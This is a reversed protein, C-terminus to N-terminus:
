PTMAEDGYLTDAGGGGILTDQGAGGHLTDHGSGGILIDQGAGGWLTVPGATFASANLLNHGPGATLVAHEISKSCTKEKRVRGGNGDTPM